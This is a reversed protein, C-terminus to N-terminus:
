AAELAKLFARAHGAILSAKDKGNVVRRANLWDSKSKTFYDALRKGTFTGLIMGDVLIPVAYKLESAFTPSTVLDVNLRKSWDAYNRRGTIQVFGRGKYKRGDGRQTNGLDKRGEYAAGSAYETLTRWADSEHHATGLIYAAKPLSLERAEIGDLVADIRTVQTQTLKGNPMYSRIASFFAARNM